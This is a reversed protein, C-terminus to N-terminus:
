NNNKFLWSIVVDSKRLMWISVLFPLALKWTSSSFLAFDGSKFILEFAMNLLGTVLRFGCFLAILKITVDVIDKQTM